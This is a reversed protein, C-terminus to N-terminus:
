RRKCRYLELPKTYRAALLNLGSCDQLYPVGTGFLYEHARQNPIGANIFVIKDIDDLLCLEKM